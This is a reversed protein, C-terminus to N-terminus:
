GMSNMVGAAVDDLQELRSGMCKARAARETESAQVGAIAVLTMTKFERDSEAVQM